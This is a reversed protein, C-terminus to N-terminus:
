LREEWGTVEGTFVGFFTDRSSLSKLFIVAIVGLMMLVLDPPPMKFVPSSNPSARTGWLQAGTPM